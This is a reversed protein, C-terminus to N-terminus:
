PAATWKITGTKCTEILKGSMRSTTRETISLTGAAGTSGLTATFREDSRTITKPERFTTRVRDSVRGLDDIALSRRPTDVIDPLELKGCALTVAYLARTLAKGDSSVRMVIGRRPGGRRESTIGYYRAKPAAGPTGIEGSPRRVQYAVTGSKCRVTKQGRVRIESSATASGDEVGTATLTGSIDYTTKLRVGPEPRRRSTGRARFGGDAALTAKASFTGGGCKGRLTAEIKLKGDAARMGLVANGAGLPDAPPPLVTGGGFNGVPLAPAQALATAALALAAVAGAVGALVRM